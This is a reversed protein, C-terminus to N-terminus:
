RAFRWGSGDNCAIHNQREIQGRPGNRYTEQYERCTVEDYRQDRNRNRNRNFERNGVSRWGNDDWYGYDKYTRIIRFEGTAGTKTNRWSGERGNDIADLRAREYHYVDYSDDNCLNSAIVRGLIAGVIAGGIAAGTDSGRNVAAGIGAGGLAGLGTGLAVDSGCGDQRNRRDDRRDGLNDGGRDRYFGEDGDFRRNVDPNPRDYSSACGGLSLSVLLISAPMSYKM